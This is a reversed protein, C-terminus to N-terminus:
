VGNSPDPKPPVARLTRVPAEAPMEAEYAYLAAEAQNARALADDRQAKLRDRGKRATDALTQTDENQKKALAVERIFHEAVTKWRDGRERREASQVQLREVETKLDEVQATLEQERLTQPAEPADAEAVAQQFADREPAYRRNLWNPNVGAERALARVSVEGPAVVEPAGTLIRRQAAKIKAVVNSDREAM